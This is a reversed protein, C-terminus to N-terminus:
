NNSVQNFLAVEANRQEVEATTLIQTIMDSILNRTIKVTEPLNKQDTSYVLWKKMKQDRLLSVLSTLYLHKHNNPFSTAHPPKTVPYETTYHVKM